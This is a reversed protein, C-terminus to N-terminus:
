IGTLLFDLAGLIAYRDGALTGIQRRLEKVPIAAMLHTAMITMQGDVEFRPHLRSLAKPADVAPILPVVIRTKFDRLVDAQIDLLYGSGHPVAYIDFQAM